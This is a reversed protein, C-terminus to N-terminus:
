YCYSSTAPFPRLQATLPAAPGSHGPTPGGLVTLPFPLMDVSNASRLESSFMNVVAPQLLLEWCRPQDLTFPVFM